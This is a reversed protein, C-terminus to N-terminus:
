DIFYCYSISSSLYGAPQVVLGYNKQPTSPAMVFQGTYLKNGTIMASFDLSIGHNKILRRTYSLGVTIGYILKNVPVVRMDFIETSSLKGSEYFGVSFQPTTIFDASVGINLKINDSYRNFLNECYRVNFLLRDLVSMAMRVERGSEVIIVGSSDAIEGPTYKFSFPLSVFGLKFAMSRSDNFLVEYSIRYGHVPRVLVEMPLHPGATRVIRAENYLLGSFGIEVIGSRSQDEITEDTEDSYKSKLLSQSYCLLVSCFCWIAFSSRYM